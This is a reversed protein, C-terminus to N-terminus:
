FFWFILNHCFDFFWITVLSLFEFQLLVWFEFQSLVWFNLDQFSFKQCFKLFDKPIFLKVGQYGILHERSLRKRDGLTKTWNQGFEFRKEYNLKWLQTVKQGVWILLNGRISFIPCITWKNIIMAWILPKSTNFTVCFM